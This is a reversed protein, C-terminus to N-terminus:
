IWIIQCKFLIVSNFHNWSREQCHSHLLITICVDEKLKYPGFNNTKGKRQFFPCIKMEMEAVRVILRRSLM